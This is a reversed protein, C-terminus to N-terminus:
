LIFFCLVMSTFLFSFFFFCVCIIMKDPGTIMKVRVGRSMAEGLTSKTDHRPPDIICLVGLLNWDDDFGGGISRAIALTKYGRTAMVDVFTEAAIADASDIGPLAL